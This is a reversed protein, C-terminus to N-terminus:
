CYTYTPRNNEVEITALRYKNLKNNAEQISAIEKVWGVVWGDTEYEGNTFEEQFDVMTEHVGECEYLLADHEANFIDNSENKYCFDYLEWLDNYAQKLDRYLGQARERNTM